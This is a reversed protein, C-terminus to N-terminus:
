SIETLLSNVFPNQSSVYDRCWLAISFHIASICVGINLLRSIHSKQGKGQFPPVFYHTFHDPRQTTNFQTLNVYIIKTGPRTQTFTVLDPLRFCLGRSSYLQFSSHCGSRPSGQITCCLHSSKQTFPSGHFINSHIHTPALPSFFEPFHWM